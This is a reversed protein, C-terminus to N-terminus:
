TDLQGVQEPGRERLSELVAVADDRRIYPVADFPLTSLANLKEVCESITNTRVKTLRHQATALRAQYDELLDVRRQEAHALQERLRGVEGAEAACHKSIIAAIDKECKDTFQYGTGYGRKIQEMIEHAIAAAEVGSQTAETPTVTLADIVRKRFVPGATELQEWLFDLERQTLPGDGDEMGISDHLEEMSMRIVRAPGAEGSTVTSPKDTKM